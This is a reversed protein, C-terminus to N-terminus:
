AEVGAAKEQRLRRRSYFFMYVAEVPTGIRCMGVRLFSLRIGMSKLVEVQIDEFLSYPRHLVKAKIPQCM